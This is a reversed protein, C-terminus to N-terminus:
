IGFPRLDSAGLQVLISRIAWPLPAVLPRALYKRTTKM